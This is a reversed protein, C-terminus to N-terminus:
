GGVTDGAAEPPRHQSRRRRVVRLRSLHKALEASADAYAVDDKAEAMLAQARARAEEARSESIEHDYEATDTLAVVDGSSRVELFGGSVAITQDGAATRVILEGAEMAAMLPKHHPLVTIQGMATPASVSVVDTDLLVREVTALKFHLTNM